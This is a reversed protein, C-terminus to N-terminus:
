GALRELLITLFLGVLMFAIAHAAGYQIMDATTGQRKKARWAGLAAGLVLGLIVIM